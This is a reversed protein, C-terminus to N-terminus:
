SKLQKMHEIRESIAVMLMTLDKENLSSLFNMDRDTQMLKVLKGPLETRTLDGIHGKWYLSFHSEM